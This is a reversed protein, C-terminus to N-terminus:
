ESKTRQALRLSARRRVTPSVGTLENRPRCQVLSRIMSQEHIRDARVNPRAAGQTRARPYGWVAEINVAILVQPVSYPVSVLDSVDSFLKRVDQESISGDSVAFVTCHERDRRFPRRLRGSNEPPFFCIDSLGVLSRLPPAPLRLLQRCLRRRQLKPCRKRRSGFRRRLRLVQNILRLVASASGRMRARSTSRRRRPRPLPPLSRIPMRCARRGQRMTAHQM